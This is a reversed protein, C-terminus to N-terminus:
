IPFEVSVALRLVESIRKNSPKDRSKMIDKGLSGRSEGFALGM